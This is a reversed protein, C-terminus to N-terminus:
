ATYYLRTCIINDIVFLITRLHQFRIVYIVHVILHSILFNVMLICDLWLTLLAYCWKLKASVRQWTRPLCLHHIHGKKNAAYKIPNYQVQEHLFGRWDFMWMSKEVYILLHESQLHEHEFENCILKDNTKIM